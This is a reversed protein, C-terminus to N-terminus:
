PPNAGEPCSRAIIENKLWLEYLSDCTKYDGQMVYCDALSRRINGLNRMETDLYNEHM